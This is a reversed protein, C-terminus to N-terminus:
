KLCHSAPMQICMSMLSGAMSLILDAQRQFRIKSDGLQTPMMTYWLSFDVTTHSGLQWSNANDGYRNGM